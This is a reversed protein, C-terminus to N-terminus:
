CRPAPHPSDRACPRYAAMLTNRSALAGPHPSQNAWKRDTSRGHPTAVHQLRSPRNERAMSWSHPGRGGRGPRNKEARQSMRRAARSRSPGARASQILRLPASVAGVDGLDGDEVVADLHRQLDIDAVQLAELGQDRVVPQAVLRGVPGRRRLPQRAEGLLAQAEDGVSALGQLGLKPEGLRAQALVADRGEGAHDVREGAAPHRVGRRVLPHEVHLQDIGEGIAGRLGQGDARRQIRFAARAGGDAEDDIVLGHRHDVEAVQAGGAGQRQVRVGPVGGEVVRVELAVVLVGQHGVEVHLGVLHAVLDQGPHLVQALPHVQPQAALAVDLDVLQLWQLRADAGEQQLLVRYQHVALRQPRDEIAGVIHLDREGADLDHLDGLPQLDVRGDDADDDAVEGVAQGLLHGHVPLQEGILDLAHRRRRRVRGARQRGIHGRISFTWVQVL